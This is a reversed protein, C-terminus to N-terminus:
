PLPAFILTVAQPAEAWVVTLETKKDPSTWFSRDPRPKGTPSRRTFGLKQASRIWFDRQKVGKGDLTIRRLSRKTGGVLDENLTLVVAEFGEERLVCAFAAITSNAASKRRLECDAGPNDSTVAEGWQINKVVLGKEVGRLDFFNIVGNNELAANLIEDEKKSESSLSDQPASKKSSCAVMGWMVMAGLFVPLFKNTM